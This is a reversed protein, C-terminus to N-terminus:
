SIARHGVDLFSKKTPKNLSIKTIDGFIESIQIVASAIEHARRCPSDKTNETGRHHIKELPQM